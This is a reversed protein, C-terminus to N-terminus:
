QSNWCLFQLWVSSLHLSLLREGQAVGPPFVWAILYRSSASPLPWPMNAPEYAEIQVLRHEPVNVGFLHHQLAFYVLEPDSPCVVALVPVNRPLDTKKYSDDEWIHDFSMTYTREWQWEGSVRSWTCMSVRASGGEPIIDVYRLQNRSVTIIRHSHIGPTAEGLDRDDPLLHFQLEPDRASADYSLVGWSLDFWFLKQHDNSVAGHPVWV